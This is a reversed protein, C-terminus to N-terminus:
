LVVVAMETVVTAVALLPRKKKSTTTQTQVVIVRTGKERESVRVGDKRDRDVIGSLGISECLIRSQGQSEGAGDRDQADSSGEEGRGCM